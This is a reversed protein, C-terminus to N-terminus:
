LYDPVLVTFVFLKIRVKAGGLLSPPVGAESYLKEQLHSAKKEKGQSELQECSASKSRFINCSLAEASPEM